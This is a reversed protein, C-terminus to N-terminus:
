STVVLAENEHRRGDAAAYGEEGGGQVAPPARHAGRGAVRVSFMCSQSKCVSHTRAHRIIQVRVARKADDDAFYDDVHTQFHETDAVFSLFKLAAVTYDQGYAESDRLTCAVLNGVINHEHLLICLRDEDISEGQLGVALLYQVVLAEQAGMIGMALEPVGDRSPPGAAANSTGLVEAVHQCLLPMDLTQVAEVSKVSCLMLLGLSEEFLHMKNSLDAETMDIAACSARAATAHAGAPRVLARYEQLVRLCMNLKGEELVMRVAMDEKDWLTMSDQGAQKPLKQEMMAIESIHKLSNTVTVWDRGLLPFSGLSKIHQRLDDSLRKSLADLQSSRAILVVLCLLRALPTPDPPPPCIHCRQQRPNVAKPTPRRGAQWRPPRPGLPAGGLLVGLAVRRVIEAGARLVQPRRHKHKAPM